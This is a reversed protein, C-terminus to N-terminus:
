DRNTADPDISLTEGSRSVTERDAEATREEKIADIAEAM